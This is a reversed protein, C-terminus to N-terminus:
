RVTEKIKQAIDRTEANNGTRLGATLQPREFYVHRYPDPRNWPKYAAIAASAIIPVLSLLDWHSRPALLQAIDQFHELVQAEGYKSVIAAM